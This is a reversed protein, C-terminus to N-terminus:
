TRTPPPQSPAPAPLGYGPAEPLLSVIGVGEGEGAQALSHVEGRRLDVEIGVDGVHDVQDLELIKVVDHEQSVAVGAKHDRTHGVPHGLADRLYHVHVGSRYGIASGEDLSKRGFDSSVDLLPHLFRSVAPPEGHRGRLLQSGEAAQFPQIVGPPFQQAQPGYVEFLRLDERWLTIESRETEPGLSWTERKVKAQTSFCATPMGDM